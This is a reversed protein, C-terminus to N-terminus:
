QPLNVSIWSGKYRKPDPKIGERTIIYGLYPIEKLGFSCKPDNVKFRAAWMMSFIVKLHYKHQYFIGKGLVIIADIYMNVGEVDDLLDDVSVQFIDGSACLVIPIRNYRSKGFETVITTLGCSKPLIYITYYNM